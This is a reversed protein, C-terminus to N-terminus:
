NVAAIAARSTQLGIKGNLAGQLNRSCRGSLRNLVNHSYAIDYSGTPPTSGRLRRGTMDSAADYGFQEYGATNSRNKLHLRRHFLHRRKRWHRTKLSM